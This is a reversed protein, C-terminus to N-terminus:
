TSILQHEGNIHKVRTAPRSQRSIDSVELRTFSLLVAPAEVWSNNELQSLPSQRERNKVKCSFINRLTKLFEPMRYSYIIPNVLSNALRCIQGALYAQGERKGTILRLVNTVGHPIWHDGVIIHRHFSNEGTEQKTAESKDSIESRREHFLCINNFICRVDSDLM